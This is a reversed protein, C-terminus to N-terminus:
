GERAGELVAVIEAGLLLLAAVLWTWGVFTVVGVLSGYFVDNEILAGVGKAQAVVALHTGTAFVAAGLAAHAPTPRTVPAHRYALWGVLFLVLTPVVHRALGSEELAEVLWPATNASQSVYEVLSTAVFVSGLLVMAAATLAISSAIRLLGRM